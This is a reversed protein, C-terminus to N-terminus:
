SGREKQRRLEQIENRIQRLEETMKSLNVSEEEQRGEEKGATLQDYVQSTLVAVFVNFSVIATLIVFSIFYVKALWPIPAQASVADMIESWSDLTMVKFLSMFASTISTFDAKGFNIPGFLYIGIISYIYLLIALLLGFSFITPIISIIKREVAKLSESMDLLRLVRLVRFLRSIILFEPHDFIHSLMSVVSLVVISFDFWNWFGQEIVHFSSYVVEKKEQEQGSGFLDRAGSKDQTDGLSGKVKAEETSIKAQLKKNPVDIRGAKRRVEVIKFFDVLTPSAILRVLIEFAFFVIFLEDLLKLILIDQGYYATDLGMVVACLIIMLSVVKHFANSDALLAAKKRLDM